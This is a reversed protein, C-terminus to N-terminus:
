RPKFEVAVRALFGFTEKACRKWSYSQVRQYSVKAMRDRLSPSRIMNKLSKAIENSNEPDFYEGADGLIEPMASRNSCAIPLGSAMAELLIQGFTECSSAFVFLDAQAYHDQLNSHSVAGTYQVFENTPDIQDLALKLRKLAPTYGPGILDLAVPIGCKRLLDVAKVVQWQHKYVDVISVYLIRFPNNTSYQNISKQERPMSFFRSDIGHPIKIIKAITHKKIVRLVVDQAYQTLFIIGGAQRFTHSQSLRLLLMKFTILSWGYRRMEKWEFPLLNQSMTVIPYFDGAYSGGPVFLIDCHTQRAIRSLYFRQWLTRRILGKEFVQLHQKELWPYEDIRDLTSQKSWVIVKSFGYKQPQSGKLLEVLHTVGGGFRINSADIGLIM